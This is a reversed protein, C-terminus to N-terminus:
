TENGDGGTEMGRRGSKSILVPNRRAEWVQVDVVHLLRVSQTQGLSFFGEDGCGNSNRPPMEWICRVLSWNARVRSDASSPPGSKDSRRPTRGNLGDVASSISGYYASSTSEISLMGSRM